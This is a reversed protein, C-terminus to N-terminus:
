ARVVNIASLTYKWTKIFHRDNLDRLWNVEQGRWGTENRRTADRHGTSEPIGWSSVLDALDVDSASVTRRGVKEVNTGSDRCSFLKTSFWATPKWPPTLLEVKYKKSAQIRWVEANSCIPFKRRRQRPVINKSSKMSADTPKDSDM